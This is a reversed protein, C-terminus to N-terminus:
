FLFYKRFQTILLFSCIYAVNKKINRAYKIFKRFLLWFRIGYFNLKMWKKCSIDYVFINICLNNFNFVLYINFYEELVFFFNRSVISFWVSCFCRFHKKLTVEAKRRLLSRKLINRLMIARFLLFHWLNLFDCIKRVSIYACLFSKVSYWM